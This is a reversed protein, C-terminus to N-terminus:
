SAWVDELYRGQQRMSQMWEAAGGGSLGGVERAVGEFAARVDPAMKRADGCVYVYAGHEQLLLWLQKASAAILDQVYAKEKGPQRSFAVQLETLVGNAQWDQLRHQYLFDQQSRCGFFLVAPGLAAGAQLVFICLWLRLLCVRQTLLQM